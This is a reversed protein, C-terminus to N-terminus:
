FIREKFNRTTKKKKKQSLGKLFHWFCMRSRMGKPRLDLLAQVSICTHHRPPDRYVGAGKNGITKPRVANSKSHHKRMMDTVKM